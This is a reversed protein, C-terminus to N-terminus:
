LKKPAYANSRVAFATLCGGGGGGSGGHILKVQGARHGIWSFQQRPKLLAFEPGTDFCPLYIVTQNAPPSGALTTTAASFLALLLLWMPSKAPCFLYLLLRNRHTM